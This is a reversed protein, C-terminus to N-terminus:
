DRRRRGSPDRSEDRNSRDYSMVELHFGSEKARLAPKANNREMAARAIARGAPSMSQMQQRLDSRMQEQRRQRMEDMREVRRAARAYERKNMQSEFRRIDAASRLEIRTMGEAAYRRAAVGDAEGPFRFTGDAAQFAIIPDISHATAKPLHIQETPAGCTPCAPTAPHMALPRM